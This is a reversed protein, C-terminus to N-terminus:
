LTLNRLDPDLRLKLWEGVQLLLSGHLEGHSRPRPLSSYEGGRMTAGRPLTSHQSHSLLLRDVPSCSVVSAEAPVAETSVQPDNAWGREEAPVETIFGGTAPDYHTTKTIVNSQVSGRRERWGVLHVQPDPSPAPNGPPPAAPPQPPLHDALLPRPSPPHHAPPRRDGTPPTLDPHSGTGPLCAVRVATEM